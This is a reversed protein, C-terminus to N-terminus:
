VVLTPTPNEHNCRYYFYFNLQHGPEFRTKISGQLGFNKNEEIINQVAVAGYDFM